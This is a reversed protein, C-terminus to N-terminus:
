SSLGRRLRAIELRRREDERLARLRKEKEQIAQYEGFAPHARLGAAFNDNTLLCTILLSLELTDPTASDDNEAKRYLDMIEDFDRIFESVSKGITSKFMPNLAKESTEASVTGPELSEPQELGRILNQVAERGEPTTPIMNGNSDRVYGDFNEGSDALQASPSNPVREWDDYEKLSDGPM